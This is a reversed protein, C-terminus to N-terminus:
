EELKKLMYNFLSLIKGKDGDMIDQPTLFRTEVGKGGLFRLVVALNDAKHVPLMARKNYKGVSEKTCDELAWILYLGNSLSGDFLSDVHADQGALHKNLFTLAKQEIAKDDGSVSSEKRRFTLAPANYLDSASPSRVAPAGTPRPSHPPSIARQHDPLVEDNPPPPTASHQHEQVEEGTTEEQSNTRNFRPAVSSRGTVAAALAGLAGHSTAFVGPIKRPKPQDVEEEATEEVPAAAHNLDSSVVSMPREAMGSGATATSVTSAPRDRPVPKPRPAPAPAPATDLPTSASETEDLAASKRQVPFPKPPGERIPSSSATSSVEVNEINMSRRSAASPKAPRRPVQLPPEVSATPPSPPPIDDYMSKRMQGSTSTSAYSKPRGGGGMEETAAESYVSAPRGDSYMSQRNRSAVSSADDFDAGASAETSSSPSKHSSNNGRMVSALASMALTPKPKKPPRAPATGSPQDSPHENGALEDERELGVDSSYASYSSAPRAGAISGPRSHGPKFQVSENSQERSHYYEESSLEGSPRPSETSPSAHPRPRPAPRPPVTEAAHPPHPQAQVPAHPEHSEHIEHVDGGSTDEEGKGKKVKKPRSKTLSSLMGRLGAKPSKHGEHDDDKHKDKKDKSKKDKKEHKDEKHTEHPPEEGTSAISAGGDTDHSSPVRAPPAPSGTGQRQPVNPLPQDPVPRPPLPQEPVPRATPVSVHADHTDIHRLEEPEHYIPSQPTNEDPAPHPKPMRPPPGTSLMRNLNSVLDPRGAAKQPSDATPAKPEHEPKDDVGSARTKAVPSKGIPPPRAAEFSSDSFDAVGSKPRPKTHLPPAPPEYGPADDNSTMREPKPVPVAKPTTARPPIAAQSSKPATSAPAGAKGPGQTEHIQRFIRQLRSELTRESAMKTTDIMAAYLERTRRVLKTELYENLAGELETVIDINSALKRLDQLVMEDDADDSPDAAEFVFRVEDVLTSVLKDLERRMTAEAKGFIDRLSMKVARMLREDIVQNVNDTLSHIVHNYSDVDEEAAHAARILAPPANYDSANVEALLARLRAHADPLNPYQQAM